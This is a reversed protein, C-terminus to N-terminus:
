QFPVCRTIPSGFVQREIRKSGTIGLVNYDFRAHEGDFFTLVGSGIDTVQQFAQTGNILYYPVGTTGSFRGSFQNQSTKNAILYFWMPRGQEVYTFWTAFITNGQHTLNIGWGSEAPNWWLDQYNADM